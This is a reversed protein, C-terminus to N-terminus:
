SNQLHKFNKGRNAFTQLNSSRCHFNAFIQLNSMVKPSLPIFLSLFSIEQTTTEFNQSNNTKKTSSVLDTPFPVVSQETEKEQQLLVLWHCPFAVDLIPFHSHCVCNKGSPSNLFPLKNKQCHSHGNPFLINM